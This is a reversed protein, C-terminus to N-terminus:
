SWHTIVNVLDDIDVVGNGDLDGGCRRSCPGWTTVVVVLDDINVVCDDNADGVVGPLEDPCRWEALGTSVIGGASAFSGTLYLSAVRPCGIPWAHSLLTGGATSGVGNPGAAGSVGTAVAQWASGNWRAIGPSPIGGATSFAGAAYLAPMAPGLGDADFVALGNVQNNMGSGVSQWSTGNWRAVRNRTLNDAMTFAGGAFLLPSGPGAGDSDYVELAYVLESMGIGLVTWVNGDLRAVRGGFLQVYYAAFLTPQHPGPGDDDLARLATVSTANVLPPLASWTQGDWRAINNVAVGGASSFAGAVYLAPLVPGSGDADLITVAAVSPGFTGGSLGSGLSSWAAGDWKAIRNATVGGAVTFQGGAYLASVHPGPGDDDFMTLTGASQNLGSGMPLWNAGDFQAIRHAVVNGAVDFGGSVFLRRSSAPTTSVEVTIASAQASLGGGMVLPQWAAGSWVAMAVAPDSGSLSFEGGVILSTSSKGPGDPDGIFFTRVTNNFGAGIPIWSQGGWKAARQLATAGSATFYGGGILNAPEPGDGDFDFANLAFVTDNFGDGVATWAAGDWKTVRNIAAGGATTFSGGVYLAPLEPGLGDVDFPLMARVHGNVGSGLTSWAQGNWRAIGAAPMGGAQDFGGGVFLAPLQPGAADEDFVAMAYVHPSGNTLTVGQGLASWSTGNWRAVGSAPNGGASTVFGAAYLAPLNPGDGDDDFVALAEVQAASNGGVITLGGAMNSWAVGDWKAFSRSGIGGATAFWGGAYLAAPHSGAGDDDFVQLATVRPLGSTETMGAGLASWQVGDWKAIHNVVTSGAAHFSGGVYLASTHPGAGDDDFEAFAYV